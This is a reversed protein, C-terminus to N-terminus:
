MSLTKVKRVGIESVAITALGFFVIVSWILGSYEIILTQLPVTTPIPIPALTVGVAIVVANRWWREFNKLMSPTPLPDAFDIPNSSNEEKSCLIIAGIVTVFVNYYGFTAPIVLTPLALCVIILVIRNVSTGCRILVFLSTLILLNGPAFWAGYSVELYTLGLQGVDYNLKSIWRFSQVLGRAFSVKAVGDDFLYEVDGHMSVSRYWSRFNHILGGPMLAFGIFYLSFTLFAAAMLKRYQRLAVFVLALLVYQPRWAAAFAVAFSPVYSSGNLSFAFILLAPVVFGGSNGRDLTMIVPHAAAGLVLLTAWTLDGLTGKVVVYVAPAILSAFLFFLYLSLVVQPALFTLLWGSFFFPTLGIPPYANTEWYGGSQVNSLPLQYDGFCHNGFGQTQPDCWGDEVRFSLLETVPKDWYSGLALSLLFSTSVLV